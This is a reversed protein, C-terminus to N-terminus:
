DYKKFNNCAIRKSKHVTDIDEKIISLNKFFNEFYNPRITDFIIYSNENTTKKLYEFYISIDYHYDLSYLSIVLDFTDDPFKGKDYDIISYQDKSIRNMKILDELISLKNYGENNSEDWGYKIKNSIYSKEIFTIKTSSFKKMIEIELGGIGSGISLIKQNPKLFPLIISFEDMMLRSYEKSIKEVDILYKSFVKSFFYRGFIKRLKKLLPSALEIRQLLALQAMERNFKLNKM